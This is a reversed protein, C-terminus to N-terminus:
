SAQNLNNQRDSKEYRRMKWGKGLSGNGGIIEVIKWREWREWWYKGGKGGINGGKEGLMEKSLQPLCGFGVDQALIGRVKLPFRLNQPDIEVLIPPIGGINTSNRPIEIGGIFPPIEM